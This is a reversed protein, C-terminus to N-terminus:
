KRTSIYSDFGLVGMRIVSVLLDGTFINDRAYVFM